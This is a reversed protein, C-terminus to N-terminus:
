KWGQILSELRRAKNSGEGSFTISFGIFKEVLGNCLGEVNSHCGEVVGVVYPSLSRAM